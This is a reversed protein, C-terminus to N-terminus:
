RRRRDQRGATRHRRSERKPKHRRAHRRGKRTRLTKARAHRHRDATKSRGSLSEESATSAKPDSTRPAPTLKPANKSTTPTSPTSPQSSACLAEPMQEAAQAYGQFWATGAPRLTTDTGSTDVLGFDGQNTGTPNIWDYPALMAIGCTSRTLDQAVTAMESARWAEQDTDGTMWGFETIYIPASGEGLTTLIQRFHVVWQVVDAATAGYPHLGFGDVKGVLGPDAEFLQQVYQAPYDTSSSFSESDDALGGIIVAADPDAEHIATRADLYMPGYQAPPVYFESDDEENWIEYVQVPHYPVQPNQSWFTGGAGYRAAVAAAYTAYTEPDAPPCFGSCDAPKAWAVAYDIIPEWTLNNDALAAVWADMETFDYDPGASTPANPEVSSWAADSRVVQVGDASMAALQENLQSAPLASAEEGNIASVAPPDTEAPATAAFVASLGVALAIPLCVRLLWSACCKVPRKRFM